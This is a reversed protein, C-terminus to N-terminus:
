ENIEQDRQLEKLLSEGVQKVKGLNQEAEKKATEKHQADSHDLKELSKELEREKDPFLSSLERVEKKEASEIESKKARVEELMKKAETQAKEIFEKNDDTEDHTM